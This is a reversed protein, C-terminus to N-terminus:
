PSLSVVAEVGTMLTGDSGTMMSPAWGPGLIFRLWGERGTDKTVSTDNAVMWDALEEPKAFVPSVPSGESVTEWIQYGKGKPPGKRRWRNHAIRAAPSDWVIGSGKCHPCSYDLGRRKCEAEIVVGCNISDHGFGGLSWVNVEAATPTIAPKRRKWGGERSWTHTFDMLRGAKVLARVDVDSLHHGWQGDFLDSLRTAESHVAGDYSNFSNFACGYRDPSGVNRKAFAVVAPHEPGFPKSGREVPNFPANGYWQDHLYQAVPTYGNKCHPCDSYGRHPNIFGEYPKSLPWDFTLPVRKLERGM